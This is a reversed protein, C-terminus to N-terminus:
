LKSKGAGPVTTEEIGTTSRDLIWKAVDQAFGVRDEGPEDHLKHYWGEYVRMEKDEVKISEYCKRSAQYDCIEDGTGHGFWIRTKGGEGVGERVTVHGSELENARDLM